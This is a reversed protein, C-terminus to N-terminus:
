FLPTSKVRPSQTQFRGTKLDTPDLQGEASQHKSATPQAAQLFNLSLTNTQNDTPLLTCITLRTYYYYYYNTRVM